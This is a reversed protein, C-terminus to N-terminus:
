PKIKEMKYKGLLMINKQPFSVNIIESKGDDWNIELDNNEKKFKYRGIIKDKNNTSKEDVVIVTKKSVIGETHFKFLTYKASVDNNDIIQPKWNGIIKDKNSQSCGIYGLFNVIIVISLLFIKHRKYKTLRM